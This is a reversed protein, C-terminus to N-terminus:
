KFAPMVKETLLEIEQLGALGSVAQYWRGTRRFYAQISQCPEVVAAKETLGFHM